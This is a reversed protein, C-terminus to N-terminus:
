SQCSALVADWPAREFVHQEVDFDDVVEHTVATVIGFAGLGVVM